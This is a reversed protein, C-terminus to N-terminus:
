PALNINHPLDFMVTMDAHAQNNQQYSNNFLPFRRCCRSGHRLSRHVDRHDGTASSIDAYPEAKIDGCGAASMAATVPCFQDIWRSNLELPNPRLGFFSPRALEL